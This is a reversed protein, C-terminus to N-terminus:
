PATCEVACATISRLWAAAKADRMPYGRGRMASRRERSTLEPWISAWDPRLEERCVLQGSEREVAACVSPHLRKTPDYM